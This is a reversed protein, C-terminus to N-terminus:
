ALREYLELVSRAADEWRFAGARKQGRAILDARLPEDQLVEQIATALAEDDGPPTLIGADGVVEPLSSTDAAIVPCGCRMAELVPLGFGEYHSPFVFVDAASYFAPVHAEPVFGTRVIRDRVGSDAIADLTNGPKWGLGGALVLRHPIGDALRSFARVLGAVNKRPELTGTFLIFPGTVGYHSALLPKAEATPVPSLDAPVAGPAVTIKGPPTDLLEALDRKTANSCTLVADARSVFRAINRSFYGVIRPSCLDPRVLFSLDYVTLVSRASQLPPLVYNTAHYVDVGGLLRDPRPRGFCQWTRYVVRAPLPIRRVSMKGALERLCPSQRGAAFGAMDLGPALRHLHLALQYTYNGVGTPFRTVSGIDYGIRM